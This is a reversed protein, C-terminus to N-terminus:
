WRNFKQRFSIKSPKTTLSTTKDSVKLNELWEGFEPRDEQHVSRVSVM